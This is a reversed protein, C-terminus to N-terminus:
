ALNNNRVTDDMDTMLLLLIQKGLLWAKGCTTEVGSEWIM